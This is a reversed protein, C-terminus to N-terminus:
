WRVKAVLMIRRRCGLPSAVDPMVLTATQIVTVDYRRGSRVQPASRISGQRSGALVPGFRGM